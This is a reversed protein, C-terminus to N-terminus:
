IGKVYWACNILSVKRSQKQMIWFLRDLHMRPNAHCILICYNKWHVVRMNSKAYGRYSTQQQRQLSLFFMLDFWFCSCSLLICLILHHKGFGRGPKRNCIECHWVDQLHLGMLFTIRKASPGLCWRLAFELLNVVVEMSLYVGGRKLLQLLISM